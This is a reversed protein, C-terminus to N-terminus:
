RHWSKAAAADADAVGAAGSGVAAGLRTLIENLAAASQNWKTQQDRYAVAAEATWVSQLPAIQRKLDGLLDNLRTATGHIEGRVLTEIAGFDYSIADRM